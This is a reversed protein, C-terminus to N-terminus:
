LHHKAWQRSWLAFLSDTVDKVVMRNYKRIELADHVAQRLRGASFRNKELVIVTSPRTHARVAADISSSVYVVELNPYDLKLLETLDWGDMRPFRVRTLLLDLQMKHKAAMRVADEPSSTQVVQYQPSLAGCELRRLTQDSEAILITNTRSSFRRRLAQILKVM